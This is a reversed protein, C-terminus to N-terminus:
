DAAADAVIVLELSPHERWTQQDPLVFRGSRLLAQKVREVTRLVTSEHVGWEFSHHFLTPYARWFELTLLIQAELNLAPPRGPKKKRGQAERYAVVMAEFTSLCVGYRQRFDSSSLGPLHELRNRSSHDLPM